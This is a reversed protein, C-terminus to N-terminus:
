GITAIEGLSTRSSADFAAIRGVNVASEEPFGRGAGFHTERAPARAQRLVSSRSTSLFHSGQHRSV